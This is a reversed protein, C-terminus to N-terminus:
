SIKRYILSKSIALFLLGFTFYHVTYAANFLRKSTELIETDLKFFLIIILCYLFLGSVIWIDSASKHNVAPYKDNRDGRGSFLLVYDANLLILARICNFLFYPSYKQKYLFYYCTIIATLTCILLFYAPYFINKSIDLQKEFATRDM